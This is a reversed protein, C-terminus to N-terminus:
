IKMFNRQHQIVPLNKDWSLTPNEGYKNIFIVYLLNPGNIKNLFVQHDELWYASTEIRNIKIPFSLFGGYVFDSNLLINTLEKLTFPTNLYNSNFAYLNILNIFILFLM